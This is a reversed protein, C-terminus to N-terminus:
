ITRTPDHIGKKATPSKIELLQKMYSITEQQTDITIKQAEITDKLSNLIDNSPNTIKQYPHEYPSENVVNDDVPANKSRHSDDTLFTNIEHNQYHSLDKEVLDLFGIHFYNVIKHVIYLPPETGREYSAINDRTAGLVSGMKEQTLGNIVRLHKINFRLKDM